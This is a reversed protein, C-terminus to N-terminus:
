PRGALPRLTLVVDGDPGPAVVLEAGAATWRLTEQADPADAGTAALPATLLTEQPEGLQDLLNARLRPWRQQSIRAILTVVADGRLAASLSDPTVGFVAQDPMRCWRDLAAADGEVASCRATPMLTILRGEPDGLGIGEVALRAPPQLPLAAVAGTALLALLLASPM